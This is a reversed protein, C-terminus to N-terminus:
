YNILYWIFIFIIYDKRLNQKLLLILKKNKKKKLNLFYKLKNNSLYLNITHITIKKFYKLSSM